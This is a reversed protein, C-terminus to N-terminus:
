KEKYNFKKLYSIRDSSFEINVPNYRKILELYILGNRVNGLTEIINYKGSRLESNLETAQFRVEEDDLAQEPVIRITVGGSKFSPLGATTVYGPVYEPILSLEGANMLSKKQNGCLTCGNQRNYSACEKKGTWKEQSFSMWNFLAQKYVELTQVQDELDVKDGPKYNTHYMLNSFRWQNEAVDNRASANAMKRSILTNLITKKETGYKGPFDLNKFDSFCFHNNSYEGDIIEAGILGESEAFKTMEWVLDEIEDFNFKKNRFDLGYISVPDVIPFDKSEEVFVSKGKIVKMYPCTDRLIMRAPKVPFNKKKTNLEIANLYIETKKERALIDNLTPNELGNYKYGLSRVTEQDLKNEKIARRVLHRKVVDHIQAVNKEDFNYFERLIQNDDITGNMYEEPIEKIDKRSLKNIDFPLSRLHKGEPDNPDLYNWLLKDPFCFENLNRSGNENTRNAYPSKKCLEELNKVIAKDDAM